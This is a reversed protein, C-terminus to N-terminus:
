RMDFSVEVRYFKQSEQGSNTNASERKCMALFMKSNQM